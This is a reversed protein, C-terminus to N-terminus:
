SVFRSADDDWRVIHDATLHVGGIWRDLSLTQLWDEAGALISRGRATPEFAGDEGEILPSAVTQLDGLIAAFGVDGLFLADERSQARRFLEDPASPGAAVAQLAHRQSRSLGDGTWPFEQCLRHLASRLYPLGQADRAASALLADPQSACVADWAVRAQDFLAETVTKRRPYLAILEDATMSGLYADSQVLSVSGAHLQMADLEVLIQLLQLQDYLDHEFWLVIESFERARRLTADRTAFDHLLKIPNGFGRSALYEGRVRSLQELTVGTAVPGEHLVDRWPLHTGIVGAKKFLYVVTDGNTIHLTAAQQPSM